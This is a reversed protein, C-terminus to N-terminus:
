CHRPRARLLYQLPAVLQTGSSGAEARVYEYRGALCSGTPDTYGRGTTSSGGAGYAPTNSTDIVACQMQIVLVLDGPAIPTSAGASSAFSIPGSSYAGPQPEYYTNVIGSITAPGDAGPM